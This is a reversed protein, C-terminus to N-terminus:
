GQCVPPAVAVGAGNPLTFLNDSVQQWQPTAGLTRRNPCSTRPGGSGGSATGLFLVQKGAGVNPAYVLAAIRGTVPAPRQPYNKPSLLTPM